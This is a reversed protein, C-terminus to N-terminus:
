REHGKRLGGLLLDTVQGPSFWPKGQENLRSSVGLYITMLLRAASAPEVQRFVGQQVGAAVIDNGVLQFMPQYAEYMRLKFVVDPGNLTTILVQAQALNGTM